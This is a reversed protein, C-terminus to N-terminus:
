VVGLIRYNVTLTQGNPVSIGGAIVDRITLFYYVTGSYLGQVQLGIENVIIPAVTANAFNRTITFHSTTSDSTPAGYTVASYQMTDAGHGGADHAILTEMKYDNITPATLGKGVVIGQNVDGIAGTTGFLRGTASMDVLNNNIDRLPYATYQRIPYAQIWLLELFQRVFSKSKMVRRETVKGDKDTVILELIAGVEGPLLLRHIEEEKFVELEVKSRIEANGM